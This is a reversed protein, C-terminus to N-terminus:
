RKHGWSSMISEAPIPTHSRFFRLCHTLKTVLVRGGGSPLALSLFVRRMLECRNDVPRRRDLSSTANVTRDRCVFHRIVRVAPSLALCTFSIRNMSSTISVTSETSSFGTDTGRLRSKALRKTWTLDGTRRRWINGCCTACPSLVDLPQSVFPMHITTRPAGLRHGCTDTFLNSHRHMHSATLIRVIRCCKWAPLLRQDLCSGCCAQIATKPVHQQDLRVDGRLRRLM